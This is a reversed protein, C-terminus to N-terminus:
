HDVDIGAAELFKRSENTLGHNGNLTIKGIVKEKEVVVTVAEAGLPCKVAGRTVGTSMKRWLPLYTFQAGCDKGLFRQAVLGGAAYGKVLGVEVGEDSEFAVM